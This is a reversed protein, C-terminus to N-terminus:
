YMYFPNPTFVKFDKELYFLIFVMIKHSCIHSMIKKIGYFYFRINLNAKLLSFVKTDFFVSKYSNPWFFLFRDTPPSLAKIKTM